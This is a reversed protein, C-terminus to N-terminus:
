TMTKKRPSLSSSDLRYLSEGAHGSLYLLLRDTPLAWLKQVLQSLAQVHPVDSKEARSVVAHIINNAVKLQLQLELSRVLNM